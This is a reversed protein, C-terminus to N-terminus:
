VKTSKMVAESRVQLVMVHQAGSPPGSSGAALAAKLGAPGLAVQLSVGMGPPTEEEDGVVTLGETCPYPFSLLLGQLRALPHVTSVAEENVDSACAAALVRLGLRTLEVAETIGTVVDVYSEGYEARCRSVFAGVADQWVAEEQLLGARDVAKNKARGNRGKGGDASTGIAEGGIDVEVGLSKALSRALSTVRGPSGVGRAFAHVDRFLAHFGPREEPREIAEGGLRVCNDRLGRAQELLPVMQLRQRLYCANLPPGCFLFGYSALSQSTYRENLRDM